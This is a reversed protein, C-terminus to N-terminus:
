KEGNSVIILDSISKPAKYPSFVNCHKKKRKPRGAPNRLNKRVIMLSRFFQDPVMRFMIGKKQVSTCMYSNGKQPPSAVNKWGGLACM